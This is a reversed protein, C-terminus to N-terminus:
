DRDFNGLVIKSDDSQNLIIEVKDKTIEYTNYSNLIKGRLKNSSISGASVFLTEELKWSYPVHRHGYIVLNVDHDVLSKLVDGCDLLENRERGTNPVPLVHHHLAIISFFNETFHSCLTEEVWKQQSRGIRGTDLDPETSDLGLLLIKNTNNDIIKNAWNRDGIEEEFTKYGVNRSDHNGPVCLIPHKFLKLYEKVGLYSKYYGNDTLDGTLVILDTKSDNIEDVFKLFMDEDFSSSGFHIDSIHTILTM